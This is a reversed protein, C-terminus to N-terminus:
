KLRINSAIDEPHKFVKDNVQQFVFAKNTSTENVIWTMNILGDGLPKLECNDTDLGFTKLISSTNM